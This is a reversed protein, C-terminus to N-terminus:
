GSEARITVAGIVRWGLPLDLPHDADPDSSDLFFTGPQFLGGELQVQVADWPSAVLLLDGELGYIRMHPELPSPQTACPLALQLDAGWRAGDWALWFGPTMLGYGAVGPPFDLAGSRAASDAPFIRTRVFAPDSALFMRVPLGQAARGVLDDEGTMGQFFFGPQLHGPTLVSAALDWAWGRIRLDSSWRERPADQYWTAGVQEPVTGEPIAWGELSGQGWAHVVAADWLVSGTVLRAFGSAYYLEASGSLEMFRQLDSHFARLGDAESGYLQNLGNLVYGQYTEIFEGSTAGWLETLMGLDQELMPAVGHVPDDAWALEFALHEFMSPERRLALAAMTSGQTSYAGRLEVAVPALGLRRADVRARLGPWSEAQFRGGAIGYPLVGARLDVAPDGDPRWRWSAEDLFLRERWAESVPVGDSVLVHVIALDDDLAPVRALSRGNARIRFRHAVGPRWTLSAQPVLLWRDLPDSPSALDFGGLIPDGSWLDAYELWAVSLSAGGEM